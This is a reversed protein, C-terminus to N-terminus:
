RQESWQSGDWEWTDGVNSQDITGGYLVLRKRVPDEALAHVTRPAPASPTAVRTWSRGDWLCTNGGFVVTQKRESDYAMRYGGGADPRDAAAQRWTSGDWEWTDNPREKNSRVGGCLVIRNRTSDFAMAHHAREGPGNDTRLQHWRKRDWEWVDTSWTGGADIGGYLVLRGRKSDFAAAHHHRPGPGDSEHKRWSGNAILEWLEGAPPGYQNRGTVVFGGHTLVSRQGPDSVAVVLSSVAPGNSARQSWATGNWLWLRSDAGNPADGGFLCM